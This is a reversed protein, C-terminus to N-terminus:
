LRYEITGTKNKRLTIEVDSSDIDESVYTKKSIYGRITMTVPNKDIVKVSDITGNFSVDRQITTHFIGTKSIVKYQPNEDSSASSNQEELFYKGQLAFTKGTTSSYKGTVLFNMMMSPSFLFMPIGIIFVSFYYRLFKQIEVRWAVGSLLLGSCYFTTFFYNNVQTSHDKKLILSAIFALLLIFHMSALLLFKEKGMNKGILMIILAGIVSLIFVIFSLYFLM